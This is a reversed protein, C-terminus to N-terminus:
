TKKISLGQIRGLGQLLLLRSKHPEERGIASVTYPKGERKGDEAEGLPRVM